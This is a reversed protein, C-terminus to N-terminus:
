DLVLVHSIGDLRACSTLFGMWVLWSTVFGMWDPVLVHSFGDLRALVHCFGDMRAGPRSLVWGIQCWSTVFGMWDLWSRHFGAGGPYYIESMASVMVFVFVEVTSSRVLGSLLILRERRLVGGPYM